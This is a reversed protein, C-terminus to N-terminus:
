WDKAPYRVVTPPPWDVGAEEIRSRLNPTAELDFPTGCYCQLTMVTLHMWGAPWRDVVSAVANAENRMGLIAYAFLLSRHDDAGLMERARALSEMAEDVRGTAALPLVRSFPGWYPGDMPIRESEDMAEKFRGLSLNAARAVNAVYANEGRGDRRGAAVYRLAGEPDGALLTASALFFWGTSDLPDCETMRRFLPRVADAYGLVAAVEIWNPEPCGGLELAREFRERLDRWDSSFLTRDVEILARRLPSRSTRAATRLLAQLSDLAAEREEIPISDDFLRHAYYDAKLFHAASFDPVQAIAEDFHENARVLTPLLPLTSHAMGFLERGRQYAVFADVNRVGAAEMQSRQDEDLVIRLARLVSAAIDDQIVFVDELTRDYTDSWVHFGDDARVLQATVRVQNNQRRVSGELIHAVGLTSGIVRLDEDRGKWAFSSTRGAVQLDPVQALVNLIEESLGDAFYEGAPDDSMNAFALVAVSRDDGPAPAGRDDSAPATTPPGEPGLPLLRGSGWGLGIGLGLVVLAGTVLITGWGLLPPAGATGANEAHSGPATTRVGDPTVEFAWGLVLALPFGLVVLVVILTMGAEPVGLRPLMIDAAQLLVFATAAYVVAVRVVKRRKLEHFFEGPTKVLSV